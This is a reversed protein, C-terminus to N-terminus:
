RRPEPPAGARHQFGPHDPRRKRRAQRLPAAADGTFLCRPTGFVARKRDFMPIVWRLTTTGSAAGGLHERELYTAYYPKIDKREKLGAVGVSVQNAKPFVWGYGFPISGFEIVVEDGLGRLRQALGGEAGM